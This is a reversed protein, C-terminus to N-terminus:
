WFIRREPEVGRMALEDHHVADFLSLRGARLRRDRERGAYVSGAWAACSAAPLLRLTPPPSSPSAASKTLDQLRSALNVAPGIVTSTSGTAPGSIASSWRAWHLGHRIGAGPARRMLEREACGHRRSRRRRCRAGPRLDRRPGGGASIGGAPWRGYFKLIDGRHAGIAAGTLKSGAISCASSRAMSRATTMATFGRLDCILIAAEIRTVDGREIQGAYVREAPARGLYHALLDLASTRLVWREAISSFLRGAM